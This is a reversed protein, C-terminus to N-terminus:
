ILFNHIVWSLVHTSHILNNDIHFNTHFLNHLIWHRNCLFIDKFYSLVLYQIYIIYYALPNHLYLKCTDRNKSFLSWLTRFRILLMHPFVIRLHNIDLEMNKNLEKILYVLYHFYIITNHNKQIYIWHSDLVFLPLYNILSIRNCM